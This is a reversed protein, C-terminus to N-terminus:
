KRTPLSICFTSGQGIKSKVSIEGKNIQVLEKCLILGLGTGKEGNTGLTTENQDFEFLHEIVESRMGIGSDKVYCKVSDDKAIAYVMIRGQKQSFKIANSILNRLVTSIMDEDAYVLIGPAVSLVISIEKQLAISRIHEFTHQVIEHLDTIEPQWQLKNRQLRSWDLLNTLLQFTEQQTKHMISVLELKKSDEMASWDDLLIESFGLLSNFPSKLDHAIISFFRDKTSNSITLEENAKKLEKTKQAVKIELGKKQNKIIGIRAIYLSIVLLSIVLIILVKFWITEHFHPLVKLQIQRPNQTWIDDSNSAHIELLYQGPNLDNILFSHRHGLDIWSNSFGVIRYKYLCSTPNIYDMASFEIEIINEDAEIVISNDQLGLDETKGLKRFKVLGTITISPLHHNVIINKPNFIVLGSVGGFYCYREGKYFAKSNFENCPLGDNEDFNIFGGRSPDFKSLGQNTSLFLNGQDDELVAYVINNPLGDAVTYYLYSETKTDMQCLGHDTGLWFKGEKSEHVCFVIGNPYNGKGNFPRRFSNDEKNFEFIGNSGSCIRLIGGSDIDVTYIRDLPPGSKDENEFNFLKFSQSRTNVKLLGVNTGACLVSDNEFELDYVQLGYVNLNIESSTEFNENYIFREYKKTTKNFLYIGGGESGFWLINQDTPDPCISYVIEKLIFESTNTNLDLKQFGTYGGVWVSQDPDEYISRISPFDLKIQGDDTDNAIYFHKSFPSLINIGKGNTGIWLNNDRDVFLVSVTKYLIGHKGPGEAYVASKHTHIDFCVLGKDYTGIWLNTKDLWLESIAFITDQFAPTSKYYTFVKREVNFHAISCFFSGLWLNGQPDEVMSTIHFKEPTGPMDPGTNFLEFGGTKQDFRYLGGISFGLWINDSSDIFIKSKGQSDYTLNKSTPMNFIRTNNQKTNYQILKLTNSIIWINKSQDFAMDQISIDQNLGPADINLFNGKIPDMQSLGKDTAVWLINDADILVKSILNSPLSSSDGPIHNFVRINYGDYRNLGNNTGIWIFGQKDQVIDTITGQSLGNKNTLKNFIPKPDIGQGQKNQM